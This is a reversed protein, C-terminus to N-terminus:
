STRLVPLLPPPEDDLVVVIVGSWAADIMALADIEPEDLWDVSEPALPAAAAGADVGSGDLKTPWDGSPFVLTMPRESTGAGGADEVSLALPLEVAEDEDAEAVDVLEHAYGVSWRRCYLVPGKKAPSKVVSACAHLIGVSVLAKM